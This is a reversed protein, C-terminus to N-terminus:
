NKTKLKILGNQAGVQKIISSAQTSALELSKKIDLDKLQCYIFTSNYADGVGTTDLAKTKIGKEFYIKNNQMAYAGKEGDTLLVTGPCHIKLNKILARPNTTESGLFEIAEDKNLMLFDTQLLVNSFKNLGLKIQEGGPNWAIKLDKFKNKYNFIKHINILSKKGSLSNLYILDFNNKVKPLKDLDIKLDLSAGRNIFITHKNDQSAYKIIFSYATSLDSFQILNSNIKKKKLDELIEKSFNDNGLASLISTQCNQLAFNTATNLAGGGFTKYIKKSEIKAGLEFGILKQRTLDQKNDILIGEKTEFTTDILSTGITLINM